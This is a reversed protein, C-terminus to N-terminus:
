TRDREKSVSEAIRAILREGTYGFLFAIALAAATGDDGITINFLKSKLFVYGALGATGGFLSRIITVFHNISTGTNECPERELHPVAGCSRPVLFEQRLITFVLRYDWTGPTAPLQVLCIVLFILAGGAFRCSSGLNTPWSGYRTHYHNGAYEDRLAMAACLREPTLPAIALLENAAASRLCFRGYREPEDDLRHVEGLGGGVQAVVEFQGAAVLRQEGVVRDGPQVADGAPQGAGQVVGGGGREDGGGRCALVEDVVM